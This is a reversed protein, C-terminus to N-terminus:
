SRSFRKRIEDARLNFLDLAAKRGNPLRLRYGAPIFTNIGIIKRRFDPNFLKLEELTVGTIGCITKAKMYYKIETGESALPPYKPIDGFIEEQYKEGYLAALFESYFNESAFSFTPSRHHEIIESLAKTRLHKVAKLLGNAGHNYATVALPWNRLIRFNSLMLKAAAQTSKIPSNREDIVGDMKLYHKGTAQMFQWIGSAGVKSQARLNFSSEVLPLRVLEVPLDYRAFIEEMESIYKSSTLIGNRFFDKQGRQERINRLARLFLNRRNGEVNKFLSYIQFEEGQLDGYYKKQSLRRLVARVQKKAVPVKASDELVRYIIWPYTSDHVVSFRSSYKTYIDLWFGVRERLGSPIQFGEPIRNFKDSLIDPASISQDYYELPLEAHIQPSIMTGQLSQPVKELDNGKGVRHGEQTQSPPEPKGQNVSIPGTTAKSTLKILELTITNAAFYITALVMVPVVTFVILGLLSKITPNM